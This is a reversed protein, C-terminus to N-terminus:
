AALVELKSPFSLTKELKMKHQITENLKKLSLNRGAIQVQYKMFGILSKCDDLLKYSLNSLDGFGIENVGDYILLVKPNEEENEFKISYSGYNPPKQMNEASIDVHPRESKYMKPAEQPALIAGTYM